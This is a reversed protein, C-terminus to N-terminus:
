DLTRFRKRYRQEFMKDLSMYAWVIMPIERNKRNAAAEAAVTRVEALALESVVKVAKHLTAIQVRPVVKIPRGRKRKHMM